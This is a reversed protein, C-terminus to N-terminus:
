RLRLSTSCTNPQSFRHPAHPLQAMPAAVQHVPDDREGRRRVVQDADAVQRHCTWLPVAKRGAHCRDALPARNHGRRLANILM